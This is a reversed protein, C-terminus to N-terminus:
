ESQLSSKLTHIPNSFTKVNFCLRTAVVTDNIVLRNVEEEIGMLKGISM